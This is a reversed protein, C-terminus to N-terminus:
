KVIRPNLSSLPGLDLTLLDRPQAQTAFRPLIFRSHFTRLLALMTHARTRTKNRAMTMTTKEQEEKTTQRPQLMCAIGHRRYLTPHGEIGEGQARGTDRWTRSPGSRPTPERMPTSTRLRLIRDLETWLKVDYWTSHVTSLRYHPTRSRLPSNCARARPQAYSTQSTNAKWSRPLELGEACTTPDYDLIIHDEFWHGRGVPLSLVGIRCAAAHISTNTNTAVSFMSRFVDGGDEVGSDDIDFAIGHAQSMDYPHVSMSVATMRLLVIPITDRMLAKLAPVVNWPCLFARPTRRPLLSWLRTLTEPIDLRRRFICVRRLHLM